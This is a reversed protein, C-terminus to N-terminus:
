ASLSSLQGAAEFAKRSRKAVRATRRLTRRNVAEDVLSRLSRELPSMLERLHSFGRESLGDALIEQQLAELVTALRRLQKRARGHVRAWKDREPVKGMHSRAKRVWGLVHEVGRAADLGRALRDIASEASPAAFALVGPLSRVLTSEAIRVLAVSTKQDFGTLAALREPGVDVLGELSDVGVAALRRLRDADLGPLPHNDFLHRL